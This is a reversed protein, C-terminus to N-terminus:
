ELCSGPDMKYTLETRNRTAKFHSPFICIWGLKTTLHSDLYVPLQCSQGQWFMKFKMLRTPFSVLLRHQTAIEGELM